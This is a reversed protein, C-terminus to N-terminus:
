FRGPRLDIRRVTDASRESPEASQVERGFLTMGVLYVGFAVAFSVFWAYSYLRELMAPIELLIEAALTGVREHARRGPKAQLLPNHQEVPLLEAGM